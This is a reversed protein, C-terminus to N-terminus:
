GTTVTLKLVPSRPLCAGDDGGSLFSFAWSAAHLAIIIVIVWTVVIFLCLGFHDSGNTPQARSGSPLRSSM